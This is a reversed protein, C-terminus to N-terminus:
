MCLFALFLCLHPSLLPSFVLSSFESGWVALCLELVRDYQINKGREMWFCGGELGGVKSIPLEDGAIPFLFSIPLYFSSLFLFARVSGQM